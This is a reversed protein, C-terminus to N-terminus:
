LITSLACTGFVTRDRVLQYPILHTRAFWKKCAAFVFFLIFGIVLPAIFAAEGYQARGYNALSFPLSRMM